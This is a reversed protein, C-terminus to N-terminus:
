THTEPLTEDWGFELEGGPDYKHAIRGAELWHCHEAFQFLPKKYNVRKLNELLTAGNQRLGPFDCM